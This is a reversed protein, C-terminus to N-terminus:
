VHPFTQCHKHQDSSCVDTETNFQIYHVMGYDWSFWFNELGGSQQSPMRFHNRFGTFNTQGQVCISETYPGTGGNDCNAEHNGTQFEANILFYIM